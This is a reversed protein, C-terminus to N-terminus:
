EGIQSCVKYSTCDQYIVWPIRTWTGNIVEGKIFRNVLKSYLPDSCTCMPFPVLISISCMPLKTRYDFVAKLSSFRMCTRCMINWFKSSVIMCEKFEIKICAKSFRLHGLLNNELASKSIPQILKVINNDRFTICLNCAWQLEKEKHSYVKNQRM